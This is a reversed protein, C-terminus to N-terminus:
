SPMVTSSRPTRRRPWRPPAGSNNGPVLMKLVPGPTGRVRGGARPGSVAKAQRCTGVFGPTSGGRGRWCRRVPSFLICRFDLQALECGDGAAGRHYIIDSSPLLCSPPPRLGRGRPLCVTGQLDDERHGLAAQLTPAGPTLLSPGRTQKRRRKLVIIKLRPLIPTGVNVMKVTGHTCKRSLLVNM